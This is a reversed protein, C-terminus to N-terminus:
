PEVIFYTFSTPNLMHRTTHLVFGVGPQREVWSVAAAIGPDDTLTVTIHSKATVRTDAVTASSAGVDVTGGGVTSFRANGGVGLALGGATNLALVGIGLGDGTVGLVGINVGGFGFDHVSSLAEVAIGTEAIFVASTQAQASRQSLLSGTLAAGAAAAGASLLRRRDTLRQLVSEGSAAVSAM